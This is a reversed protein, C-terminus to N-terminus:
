DIYAFGRFDEKLVDLIHNHVAAMMRKIAAPSVWLIKREPMKLSEGRKLMQWLSIGWTHFFFAAQRPTIQQEFGEDHIRGLLWTKGAWSVEMNSGVKMGMKRIERVHGKAGKKSFSRELAGTRKLIPGAPSYGEMGRILQTLTSLEAWGGQQRGQKAFQEKMDAEFADAAQGMPKRLDKVKDASDLFGATIQQYPFVFAVNLYGAM